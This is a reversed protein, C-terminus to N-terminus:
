YKFLKTRSVKKPRSVWFKFEGHEFYQIQNKRPPFETLNVRLKLVLYIQLRRIFTKLVFSNSAASSGIIREPMKLTNYFHLMKEVISCPRLQPELITNCTCFDTLFLSIPFVDRWCYCESIITLIFSFLLKLSVLFKENKKLGIDWRWM